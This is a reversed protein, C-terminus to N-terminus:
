GCTKTWSIANTQYPIRPLEGPLPAAHEKTRPQVTIILLSSFVALGIIMINEVISMNIASPLPAAHISLTAAASVGAQERWCQASKLAM